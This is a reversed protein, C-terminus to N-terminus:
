GRRIKLGTLLDPQRRVEGTEAHRWTPTGDRDRLERRWEGLILITAVKLADEVKRAAWQRHGDGSGENRLYWGSKVDRLRGLRELVWLDGMRPTEWRFDGDGSWYMDGVARFPRRAEPYENLTIKRVTMSIAAGRRAM